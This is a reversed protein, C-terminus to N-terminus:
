RRPSLTLNFSSGTAFSFKLRGGSEGVRKAVEKELDRMHEQYRDPSSQSSSNFLLKFQRRPGAAPTGNSGLRADIIERVVRPEPNGHEGDGCFVYADATVERAFAPTLNAVAGHHQVKLVDVHIRGQADLRGAEKLGRVIERAHGDGTLLVTRGDAEALLMLSALNPPTVDSRDGLGGAAARLPEHLLELETTPLRESERRMRRKLDEHQRRHKTLWENWKTRLVELDERFPGIVTLKFGGVRIPRQDERVLALRGEFHKNLPIRLQEIGARRSLEIGESISTALERYVPAEKRLSARASAELVPAQAALLDEIEGANDPVQEHFANHWLHKVKPPRPRDPSPADDNGNRRQYAVVRWNLEDKFLELVGSIHDQDIHSVYLLDLEGGSAHIAGLAPAVHEKYADYMGGDALITTGDEARLLLSDGKGAQFVTLKM